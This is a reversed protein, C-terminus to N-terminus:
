QLMSMLLFFLVYSVLNMMVTTQLTKMMPLKRNLLYLVALEIAVTVIFLILLNSLSYRGFLGPALRFLIFGAAISATNAIFSDTIAKRFRNYKILLMIVAEIVITVLLVAILTWDISGGSVGADAVDLLYFHM